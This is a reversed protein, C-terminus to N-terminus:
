RKDRRHHAIRGAPGQEAGAHSHDIGKEPNNKKGMGILDLFGKM